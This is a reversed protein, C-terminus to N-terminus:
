LRLKQNTANNCQRESADLEYICAHKARLRSGRNKGIEAIEEM